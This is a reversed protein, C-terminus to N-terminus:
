FIHEAEQTQPPRGGEVGQKCINQGQSLFMVAM